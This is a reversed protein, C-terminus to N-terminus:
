TGPPTPADAADRWLTAVVIRLKGSPTYRTEVKGKAAWNYITRVSVGALRAAGPVDTIEVAGDWGRKVAPPVAHSVVARGTAVVAVGAAGAGDALVMVLPLIANNLSVTLVHLTLCIATPTHALSPSWFFFQSPHPWIADVGGGERGGGPCHGAPSRRITSRRSLRAPITATPRLIVSLRQSVAGILM